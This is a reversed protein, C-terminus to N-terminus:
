SAIYGSGGFTDNSAAMPRHFIMSAVGSFGNGFGFKSCNSLRQSFVLPRSLTDFNKPIKEDLLNYM